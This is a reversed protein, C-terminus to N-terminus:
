VSPPTPPPSPCVSRRAPGAALQRHSQQVCVCVCVCVHMCTNVHVVVSKWTLGWMSIYMYMYMCTCTCHTQENMCHVHIM